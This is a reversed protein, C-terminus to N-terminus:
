RERGHVLAVAAAVLEANGATTRGDPLTIADELGIRVDLGDRVAARLVEWAAPGYGHQLLPRDIGADALRARVADANALADAPEREQPEVLVRVCRPALRSHALREADDVSWIGAEVGIGGELLLECLPEPDPESFNVSAFDPRSTWGAVAAARAEASGGAAWLGTTVGVPVGPCSERVAVVAADVLEADLTEAGDLDRPHLHVAGAGAAVAARAEAALEGPTLPVAPHEERSTGGNLCCKVLIPM